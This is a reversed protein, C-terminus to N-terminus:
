KLAGAATAVAQLMSLQAQSRLAGAGARSRFRTSLNSLETGFRDRQTATEERRIDEQLITLPSGEFAKIGKSGAEANQSALAESLRLKRDAERQTAELEKQKGAIKGERLLNDAARRSAAASSAAAAGTALLLLLPFAM